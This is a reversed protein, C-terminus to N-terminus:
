IRRTQGGDAIFCSGTVFAARDSCLFAVLNAIENPAGFRKLAVESDIYQLVENRRKDLHQEWTGGPFLVNGPAV